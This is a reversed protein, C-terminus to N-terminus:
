FYATSHGWTHTEAPWDPFDTCMSVSLMNTTSILATTGHIGWITPWSDTLSANPSIYMTHYVIVFAVLISHARDFLAYHPVCLRPPDRSACLSCDARVFLGCIQFDISLSLLSASHSGSPRISMTYCMAISYEETRQIVTVTCLTYKTLYSAVTDKRAWTNSVTVFLTDWTNSLPYLSM